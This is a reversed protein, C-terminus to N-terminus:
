IGTHTDRGTTPHNDTRVILFYCVLLKPGDERLHVDLKSPTIFLSLRVQCLLIHFVVHYRRPSKRSVQAQLWALPPPVRFRLPIEIRLCHQLQAWWQPLSLAFSTETVSPRSNHEDSQRLVLNPETETVATARPLRSTVFGPVNEQVPQMEGM